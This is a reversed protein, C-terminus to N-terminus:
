GWVSRWIQVSKLDFDKSLTFYYSGTQVIYVTDMGSGVFLPSGNKEVMVPIGAEEYLILLDGQNFTQTLLEWVGVPIYNHIAGGYIPENQGGSAWAYGWLGYLKEDASRRILWDCPYCHRGMTFQAVWGGATTYRYFVSGGLVSTWCWIEGKDEDYFASGVAMPCTQAQDTWSDSPPKNYKLTARTDRRVVYIEDSIVGVIVSRGDGPHNTLSTWAYTSYDMSDFRGGFSSGSQHLYLADTCCVVWIEDVDSQAPFDAVSAWSDTAITYVLIKKEYNAGDYLCAFYIKGNNYGACKCRYPSHGGNSTPVNARKEWLGTNFNYRYHLNTYQATGVVSQGGFVYLYDGVIVAGFEYVGAGAGAFSAYPTQTLPSFYITPPSATAGDFLKTTIFKAFPNFELGDVSTKVRVAELGAGAYDAPTDELELFTKAGGITGFGM